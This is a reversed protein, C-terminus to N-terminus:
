GEKLIEKEIAEDLEEKQKILKLREKINGGEFL